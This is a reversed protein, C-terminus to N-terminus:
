LMVMVVVASIMTSQTNRISAILISMLARMRIVDFTTKGVAM